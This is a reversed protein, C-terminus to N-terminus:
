PARVWRAFMSDAPFAELTHKATGTSPDVRAHHILVKGNKTAQSLAPAYERQSRATIEGQDRRSRAMIECPDRVEDVRKAFAADYPEMATALQDVISAANPGTEPQWTALEPPLISEVEVDELEFDLQSIRALHSRSM